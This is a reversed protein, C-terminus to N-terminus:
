RFRPARMGAICSSDPAASPDAVFALAMELPCRGAAVVGHGLGPFEYFHGNELTAAAMRGWEPPTIPDYEGALVLAPIRSAVPQNEVPAAPQAGWEACIGMLSNIEVQVLDRIRPNVNELLDDVMEPSTFTMEDSCQVSYMMGDALGAFAFLANEAYRALLEYSGAAATAIMRPLFPIADTVYLSRFFITGLASGDLMVDYVRGSLPHQIKITVPQEDLREVLDYFAAELDPYSEGCRTEAACGDFLTRFAREVNPGAEAYLNAQVPLTADLIASRVVEPTDRLTTLALRTGYSGGYLNAQEYGLTQILDRVDAANAASTYAALNVGAERLRDRCLLAVEIQQSVREDLAPRHELQWAAGLDVEPCELSPESFGTGRQDFFIVDGFPLFHLFTRGMLGGSAGVSSAGPGGALYVLPYPTADQHGTRYIAVALRISGGDPNARDEPVHLFGCEINLLDTRFWPPCRDLREFYPLNEQAAAPAALALLAFLVAFRKLM